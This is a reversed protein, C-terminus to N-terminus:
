DVGSLFAELQPQWDHADLGSGGSVAASPTVIVSTPKYILRLDFEREATTLQGLRGSPAITLVARPAAEGYARGRTSGPPLAIGLYEALSPLIDRHSILRASHQAARGPLKFFLPVRKTAPGVAGHGQMGPVLGEGHDATVVIALDDYVGAQKLAKIVRALQADVYHAANRYRNHLLEAEQKTEIPRPLILNESFPKFLAEQEPFPYTYHTSDLQLLIFQPRGRWAHKRIFEVSHDAITRDNRNKDAPDEGSDAAAQFLDIAPQAATQLRERTKGYTLNTSVFLHSDFGAKRMIAFLWSGLPEPRGAHRGFLNDHSAEDFLLVAWSLPTYTAEALARDFVVSEQALRWLTPCVIPDLADARFSELLVYLVHHPRTAPAIQQLWRARTAHTVPPPVPLVVSRSSTAYLQLYGPVRLGRSLYESDDRAAVQELVFAGVLLLLWAPRLPPRRLFRAHSFRALLLRATGGLTAAATLLLFLVLLRLPRLGIERLGELPHQSARLMPLIERLPLSTMRMLTADLIMFTTYLTGLAAWGFRAGGRDIRADVLIFALWVLQQQITFSVIAWPSPEPTRVILIWVHSLGFMALVFLWGGDAAAGGGGREIAAVARQKSVNGVSM